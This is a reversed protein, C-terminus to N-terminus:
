FIFPILAARVRQKYAPYENPFTQTMLSEEIPVRAAFSAGIIVLLALGIWTAMVALFTGFFAAIWGSYIPHRTFQYPGSQVLEHNEKITPYGSWNTSLTKRAWIAWSVGFVCLAVGLIQTLKTYPIIIQTRYHGTAASIVAVAVIVLLPGFFPRRKKVTNKKNGFANVLWYGIFALWCVDIILGIISIPYPM